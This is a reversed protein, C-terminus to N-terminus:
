YIEDPNQNKMARILALQVAADEESIVQLAFGSHVLVYDGAKIKDLLQIGINVSMGGVEAVAMDGEISIVKAPISLCM